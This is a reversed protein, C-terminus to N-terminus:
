IKGNGDLTAHVSVSYHGASDDASRVRLAVQCTRFFVVSFKDPNSNGPVNRRTFQDLLVFITWLDLFWMSIGLAQITIHLLNWLSSGCGRSLRMSSSDGPTQAGRHYINLTVLFRLARMKLTLCNYPKKPRSSLSTFGVTSM